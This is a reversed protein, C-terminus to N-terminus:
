AGQLWATVANVVDREFKAKDQNHIQVTTVDPIEIYSRTDNLYSCGDRSIQVIMVNEKGLYGIVPMIEHEFGSDSCLILPAMNQGAKSFDKGLDRQLNRLYIKGFIEKGFLPKMAKESLAKYVTRPTEGFFEACPQEKCDEFADAAYGDLGFIAHAGQKLAHAFKTPYPVYCKAGKGGWLMFDAVAQAATDKGAYPPANFFVAKAQSM